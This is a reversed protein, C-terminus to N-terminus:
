VLRGKQSFVFPLEELIFDAFSNDEKVEGILLIDYALVDGVVVNFSAIQKEMVEDENDVKASFDLLIL